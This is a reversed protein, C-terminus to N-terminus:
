LKKDGDLAAVIAWDVNLGPNAELVAWTPYTKSLTLMPFYKRGLITTNRQYNQEWYRLLKM